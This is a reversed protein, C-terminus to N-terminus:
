YVVKVLRSKKEAAAHARNASTLEQRTAVGDSNRDIRAWAVSYLRFFRVRKANSHGSKALLNIFSRFESRDLSASKDTDALDFIRGRENASAHTAGAVMLGTLLLLSIITKM